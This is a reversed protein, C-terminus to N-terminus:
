RILIHIIHIIYVYSNEGLAARLHQNEVRFFPTGSTYFFLALESQFRETEAKSPLPYGFIAARPMAAAEIPRALPEVHARHPPTAEVPRPVTRAAAAPRQTAQTFPLPAGARKPLFEARDKEPLEAQARLFPACRKLHSQVSATKKYHAVDSECWKCRSRTDLNPAADDTFQAWLPSLKRGTRPHVAAAPQTPPQLVPEPEDALLQQGYAITEDM